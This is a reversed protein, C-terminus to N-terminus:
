NRADRAGEMEKNYQYASQAMASPTLRIIESKDAQLFAPLPLNYRDVGAWGMLSLWLLSTFFVICVGESLAKILELRDKRTM